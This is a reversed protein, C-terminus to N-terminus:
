GRGSVRRKSPAGSLSAALPMSCPGQILDDAYLVGALKQFLPDALLAQKPALSSVVVPMGLERAVKALGIVNNELKLPEMSRVPFVSPTHDLFVVACQDEEFRTPASM